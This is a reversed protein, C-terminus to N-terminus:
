EAKALAHTLEGIVLADQRKMWDIIEGEARRGEPTWEELTGSAFLGEDDAAGYLRHASARCYDSASQLHRQAKGGLVDLRDKLFVAAAQRADALTMRAFNHTHRLQKAQEETLKDFRDLDALWREYASLGYIYERDPVGGNHAGRGWHDIALQLSMVTQERPSPTEKNRGVLYSQMPGLKALPLKYPHEPQHYDTFWLVDGGAEYGYIVAKDLCSGYAMVPLSADISAVIRKRIAERDPDDQGFQVDTDLSWGTCRWMALFEDPLEAVQSSPCFVPSWRVRFAMGSFGMLDAYGYPVDTAKLASEAAGIFTCDRDLGWGLAPIGDIWVAGGDRKLEPAPRPALGEAHRKLKAWSEFGYEVALAQQADALTVKASLIGRGGDKALRPLRRFVPLCSPDGNHHAKLVAKAQKQLFRVSPKEPLPPIPTVSTM